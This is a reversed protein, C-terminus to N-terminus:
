QPCLALISFKGARPQAAACLHLVAEAGVAKQVSCPELHVLSHHQILRFFRDKTCGYLSFFDWTCFIIIILYIVIQFSVFIKELM